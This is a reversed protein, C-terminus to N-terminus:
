FFLLNSIIMIDVNKSVPRLRERQCNCKLHFKNKSIYASRSRPLLCGYSLTFDMEPIETYSIIHKKLSKYSLKVYLEAFVITVFPMGFHDNYM